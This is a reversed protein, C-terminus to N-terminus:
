NVALPSDHGAVPGPHLLVPRDRQKAPAVHANVGAALLDEGLLDLSRDLLMWVDEVRQDDSNWVLPEPLANRCDHLQPGAGVEIERGQLCHHALMDGSVLHRAGYPQRVLDAPRRPTLGIVSQAAFDA